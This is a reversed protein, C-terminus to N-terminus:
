GSARRERPSPPRPVTADLVAWTLWADEILQGLPVGLVLACNVLHRLPPNDIEGREVRRYTDLKIGTQEAMERQTLQAALRCKVLKTAGKTQTRRPADRGERKFRWLAPDRSTGESNM